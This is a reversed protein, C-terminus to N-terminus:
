DCHEQLIRVALDRSSAVDIDDPVDQGATVYSIPIPSDALRDAFINLIPSLCVTEDLKTLLLQDIGLPGFKEIASSIQSHAATASAVLHTQHPGLVQHFSRLEALRLHDNPSRGTTDIFILSHDSLRSLQEALEAPTLVACFPVDIIDAYTRLQDVAAIRYTDITLLAVSTNRQLKYQAALKAITTTKGVGTPGIFSVIRPKADLSPQIPGATPIMQQIRSLLPNKSSTSSLEVDDPLGDLLRQALSRNIYGSVFSEFLSQLRDSSYPQLQQASSSRSDFLTAGRDSFRTSAAPADQQLWGPVDLDPLSVRSTRAPQASGH